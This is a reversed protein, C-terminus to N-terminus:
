RGPTDPDSSQDRHEEDAEIVRQFVWVVLAVAALVAAIALGYDLISNESSALSGAAEGLFLIILMVVVVTLLNFKLQEFDFFKLQEFDFVRLGKPLDNKPDIFLQYLGISTILLVTGLLFLDIMKIFEVGVMRAGKADFQGGAFARIITNMTAISGFVFVAVAALLLGIVAFLVLYRSLAFVKTMGDNEM